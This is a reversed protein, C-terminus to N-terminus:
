DSSMKNRYFRTETFDTDYYKCGKRISDYEQETIYNKLILLQIIECCKLFGYEFDDKDTTNNILDLEKKDTLEWTKIIDLKINKM